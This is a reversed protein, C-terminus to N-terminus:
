WLRRAPEKPREITQGSQKKQLLEKLAQEYEDEFKEPKFDGRKSEVIHLALDLM